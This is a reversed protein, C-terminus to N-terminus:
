WMPPLMKLLNVTTGPLQLRSPRQKVVKASRGGVEAQQHRQEYDSWAAAVADQLACAVAAAMLMPPEGTAKASLQRKVPVHIPSEHLMHVNFVQLSLVLVNQPLNM